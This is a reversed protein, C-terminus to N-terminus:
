LRPPCAVGIRAGMYPEDDVDSIQIQAHWQRNLDRVTAGCAPTAM